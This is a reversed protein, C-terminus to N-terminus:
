GKSGSFGKWAGRDRRQDWVRAESLGQHDSDAANDGHRDGSNAAPKNVSEGAPPSQDNKKLFWFHSESVM